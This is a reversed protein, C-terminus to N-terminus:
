MRELPRWGLDQGTGAGPEFGPTELSLPAGAEGRGM